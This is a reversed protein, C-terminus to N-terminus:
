MMKLEERIIEVTKGEQNHEVTIEKGHEEMFWRSLVYGVIVNARRKCYNDKVKDFQRFLRVDERYCDENEILDKNTFFALLFM